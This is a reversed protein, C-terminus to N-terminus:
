RLIIAIGAPIAAIGLLVFGPVTQQCFFAWYSSGALLPVAIIGIVAFPITIITRRLAIRKAFYPIALVIITWLIPLLVMASPYNIGNRSVSRLAAHPILYLLAFSVMDESSVPKKVLVPMMSLILPILAPIAIDNVTGYIWRKLGFEDLITLMGAHQILAASSGLIIAWVTDTVATDEIGSRWFLYFLPLWLLCFLSM